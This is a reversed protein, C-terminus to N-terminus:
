KRGSLPQVGGSAQLRGGASKALLLHGAVENLVDRGAPNNAECEQLAWKLANKILVDLAAHAQNLEDQRM